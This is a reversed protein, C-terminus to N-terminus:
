ILQLKQNDLCYLVAGRGSITDCTEHPFLWSTELRYCVSSILSLWKECQFDHGSFPEKVEVGM